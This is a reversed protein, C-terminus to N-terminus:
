EGQERGFADAVEVLRLVLGVRLLLRVRKKWVLDRAEERRHPLEVGLVVCHREETEGRAQPRPRKARQTAFPRKGVHQPVLAPLKDPARVRPSHLDHVRRLLAHAMPNVQGLGHELHEAPVHFGLERRSM